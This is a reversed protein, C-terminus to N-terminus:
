NSLEQEIETAEEVSQARFVATRKKNSKPDQAEFSIKAASRTVAAIKPKALTVVAPTACFSHILWLTFVAATIPNGCMAIIAGIVGGLASGIGGLIAAFVYCNVVWGCLFLVVGVAPHWHKPGSIKVEFDTIQIQGKRVFGFGDVKWNSGFSVPWSGGSKDTPIADSALTEQKARTQRPAAPPSLRAAPQFGEAPPVPPLGAPLPPPPPETLSIVERLPRWNEMGERWALSEPSLRGTRELAQVEEVEHPGSQREDILVYIKM